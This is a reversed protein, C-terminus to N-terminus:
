ARRTFGSNQAVARFQVLKTGLNEIVTGNAATMRLGPEKAMLPLEELLDKPWVNVGAGSDLTITGNEGNAYEVDFVYTGKDVRIKLKEGTQLNEIYNDEPLPGMSIKNGAEVVKAASALPKKVSAVNFRMGSPRSLKRDEGGITGIMVECGEDFDSQEDLAQFSNRVVCPNRCGRELSKRAIGPKRRGHGSIVREFESERDVAGIMWIGGVDVEDERYEEEVCNAQTYSSTCEAAKHGITGCRWCTGQYGKGVGKPGKGGKGGGKGDGKQGKYSNKGKYGKQFAQEYTEQGYARQQGFKGKGKGKATPCERQMHGYGGCRHCETYASVAGLDEEEGEGRDTEWGNVEGVDMPCPGGMMAVRNSVWSKVKEVIEALLTKETVNQYVYDQIVTPLFSTLIAIKMQDSMRENFETQLVKVKGEWKQIAATVDKLDKVNGPSAVEGMLRIARAMTRPNYKQHLKQWATFGRFDEVSRVIAMAEGSVTQCLIDYMESSMKEVEVDVLEAALQIEDLETRKEVEELIQYVERSQTRAARKLGFAWDGWAAASGDFQQLRMHKVVLTPKGAGGSGRGGVPMAAAGGGLRELLVEFQEQSM